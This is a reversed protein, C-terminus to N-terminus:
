KVKLVVFTIDDDQIRGNAWKNGANVLYSIIEEPSKNAAEEFLKIAKEYGLMEDQKNFTEPLGDSMFLVTDGIELDIKKQKYPFDLFGGLPIGKLEVEEVNAFKARYFITSPMGASALTLQRKKIKALILAMYKGRIGMGYIAKSANKLIQVPDSQNALANFLSKTATVMTGANLGHGTADGVAITLTGDDSLKFDYYDGGVETATKMYVAIDLDPIDPIKEPLMSLQLKRAEELELSKRENEAKLAKAEAEKAKIRLESAEAKLKAEHKERERAQRLAVTMQNFSSSLNGIEDTTLTKLQVELNGEAVNKVGGVLQKLPITIYRVLVLALFSSLIITFILLAITINKTYQYTNEARKAAEFVDEKYISVLNLLDNSFDNFMERAEGNLLDVAEKIKNERSLKFFQFSQDQYAEWKGEFESYLVEEDESYLYQKGYRKKLSIYIDQNENIKDILTVMKNAQEQKSIEDSAFAHQLQLRRLDSTYLNIQSVAIARPLWNQTVQDIEVKITAMKNISFITVGAMILLILSFGIIQKTGLKLDKFKM